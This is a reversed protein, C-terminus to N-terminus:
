RCEAFEVRGNQFVGVRKYGNSLTMSFSTSDPRHGEDVELQFSVQKRDIEGTGSITAHKGSIVLCLISTAHFRVRSVRDNYDFHGRPSRRRSNSVVDLNFDSADAPEALRGNGHVSGCTNDSCVPEPSPSPGPSPTPSSTPLPSPGPTPSSGPSPSSRPTPTPTAIPTPTLGLDLRFVIGKNQGGGLQTTGYLRGDTAQILGAVPQHGDGATEGFRHLLTFAGAPTLKFISGYRAGGEVAATGYLNGDNALLLNGM